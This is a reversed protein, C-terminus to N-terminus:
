FMLFCLATGIVLNGLSSLTSAGEPMNFTNFDVDKDAWQLVDIAATADDMDDIAAVMKYKLYKWELDDPVTADTTKFKRTMNGEIKVCAIFSDGFVWSEKCLDTTLAEVVKYADYDLNTRNSDWM